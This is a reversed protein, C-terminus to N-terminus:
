QYIEGTANITISSGKPVSTPTASLNTIIPTGSPYPWFSACDPGGYAGMDNRTGDPDNYPDGRRGTNICPSTVELAYDGTTQDIFQPYESIDGEGASCGSYNGGANSYIDNYSIYKEFGGWYGSMYLGRGGNSAIINGAVIGISPGEHHYLYVGDSVNAVITNNVITTNIISKQQCYIGAAGCGVIM